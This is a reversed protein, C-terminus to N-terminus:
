SVVWPYVVPGLAVDNIAPIGGTSDCTQGAHISGDDFVVRVGSVCILTEVEEDDMCCVVDLYGPLLAPADPDGGRALVDGTGRAPYDVFPLVRVSWVFHLDPLILRHLVVCNNLANSPFANAM